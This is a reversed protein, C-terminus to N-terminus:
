ARAGERREVMAGYIALLREVQQIVERGEKILRSRTLESPAVDTAAAYEAVLEGFEKLNRSQEVILDFGELRGVEPKPQAVLGADQNVAQLLRWSGLTRCFPVVKEVPFPTEGSAYRYLQRKGRLGLRAALQHLLMDRDVGARAERERTVWAHIEEDVLEPVSGFLSM